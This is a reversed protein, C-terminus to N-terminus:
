PRDGLLRDLAAVCRESARGDGYPTAVGALRAHLADLDELWSRVLTGIEPGPPVLESFTGLVEPRETSRRVVAVPKKLVSAEEIVGGSDCVIAASEAALSLFERYGAPETVTLQALVGALGFAHARAETRPHLPLVVPVPLAALEGLIV